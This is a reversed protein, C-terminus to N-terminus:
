KECNAFLRGFLFLAVCIVYGPAINLDPCLTDGNCCIGRRGRTPIGRRTRGPSTPASSTKDDGCVSSKSSVPLSSTPPPPADDDDDDSGKTTDIYKGLKEDWYIVPKSDDPLIMSKPKPERNLFRSFFGGGSGGKDDKKTDKDQDKEKEKTTEKEAPQKKKTHPLDFQFLTLTLVMPTFHPSTELCFFLDHNVKNNVFDKTKYDKVDQTTSFPCDGNLLCYALCGIAWTTSPLSGHTGTAFFEPPLYVDTGQFRNYQEALLSASGFDILKIQGTTPNYLINEDAKLIKRAEAPALSGNRDIYSFLDEYGSLYEMIFIWSDSPEDFYMEELNLINPHKLEEWLIIEDPLDCDRLPCYTKRKCKSDPIVKAAHLSGDEKSQVLMVSGYGGEGLVRISTYLDSVCVATSM